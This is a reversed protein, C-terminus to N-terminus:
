FIDTRRQPFPLEIECKVLADVIRSDSYITTRYNPEGHNISQKWRSQNKQGYCEPFCLSFWSGVNRKDVHVFIKKTKHKQNTPTKQFCTGSSLWRAPSSLENVQMLQSNLHKTLCLGISTSWACVWKIGWLEGAVWTLIKCQCTKM